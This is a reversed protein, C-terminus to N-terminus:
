IEIVIRDRDGSAIHPVFRHQRLRAVIRIWVNWELEDDGPAIALRLSRATGSPDPGDSPAPADSEPAPGPCARHDTMAM